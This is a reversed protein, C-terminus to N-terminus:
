YFGGPSQSNLASAITATPEIRTHRRNDKGVAADKMSGRYSLESVFETQHFNQVLIRNIVDDDDPRTWGTQRCSYIRCRFPERNQHNLVGSRASLCACTRFDFIVESKRCAYGSVTQGHFRLQLSLFESSADDYRAAYNGNSPLSEKM